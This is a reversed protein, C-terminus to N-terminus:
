NSSLTQSQRTTYLTKKRRQSSDSFMSPTIAGLVDISYVIQLLANDSGTTEPFACVWVGRLTM